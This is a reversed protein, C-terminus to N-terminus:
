TKKLLDQEILMTEDQMRVEIGDERAQDTRFSAQV